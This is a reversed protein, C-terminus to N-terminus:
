GSRTRCPTPTLVESKTGCKMSGTSAFFRPGQSVSRRKHRSAILSFCAWVGDQKQPGKPQGKLIIQDPKKVLETIRSEVLHRVDALSWVTKRSQLAERLGRPLLSKKWPSEYNLL